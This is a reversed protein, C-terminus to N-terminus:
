QSTRTMPSTPRSSSTVTRALYRDLIGPVFKNAILTGVTSGGVWYEAGRTIRRM